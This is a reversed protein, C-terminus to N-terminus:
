IDSHFAMKFYEVMAFLTSISIFTCIQIERHGSKLALGSERQLVDNIVGECLLHRVEVLTNM